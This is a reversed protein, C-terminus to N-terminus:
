VISESIGHLYAATIAAFHLYINFIETCPPYFLLLRYIEYFNLFSIMTQLCFLDINESRDPIRLVGDYIFLSKMM